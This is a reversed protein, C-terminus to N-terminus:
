LHVGAQVHVTYEDFGTQLQGSRVHAHWVAQVQRVAQLSAQVQTAGVSNVYAYVSLFNFLIKRM